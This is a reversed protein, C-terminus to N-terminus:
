TLCEPRWADGLYGLVAPMDLMRAELCRRWGMVDPTNDAGNKGPLCTSQARETAIAGAGGPALGPRQLRQQPNFSKFDYATLIKSFKSGIQAGASLLTYEVTLANATPNYFGCTSRYGSNNTYNQILMTRTTDATEANVLNLGPFTKSYSGNLTRATVQIAHAGDQTQFVVAGVRGFYAFAGSDLGDITSLLNAYKVKRGAASGTWLVFPGRRAGAGYDFYVSVQSGGTVDVIQVESMWTGGGTAAAWIAEPLIQLNGPGTATGGAAQLAVHAAPDNSANNVSAGFCVVKGAGMTPRVQLVVNDNATGPYPVGAESFPSFAAFEQGALRRIITSGVQANSADLLKLELTLPEVTPNFFGCSSRYSANNVLNPIVMLRDVMATNDDHLSLATSTKASSGNLTRAAAQITHSGDQTIFEVAGVKGFYDFVGSDLGDITQLLNAYKISSFAGGSSNNWLLFPGRRGAATSFYVSVRSGGSVDTLQVASMWTGGGSATAWIVEPLVKYQAPSNYHGSVGGGGISVPLSASWLSVNGPHTACRAQAKVAYTGAVAWSHSASTTGVSLWGSDTGDGWDIMYQVAHGLSTTSGGTAYAYSAGITGTPPGSPTTPTSVTESVNDSITFVSNSVDSPSGDNERVRVLCTASPTNPVTWPQLGDNATNSAIATWNAGNDTSYDINVLGLSGSSSWTINRSESVAWVEGGNPSIVTLSGCTDPANAIYLQSSSERWLLFLGGNGAVLSPQRFNYLGATSSV